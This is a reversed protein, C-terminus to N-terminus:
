KAVGAGVEQSLDAVGSYGALVDISSSGDLM